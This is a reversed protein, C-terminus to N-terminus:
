SNSLTVKKLIEHLGLNWMKERSKELFQWLRQAVATSFYRITKLCLQSQLSSAPTVRM